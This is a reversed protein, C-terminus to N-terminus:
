CQKLNKQNKQSVFSGTFGMVFLFRKVYRDVFLLNSQKNSCEASDTSFLELGEQEKSSHASSVAERRQCVYMSKLVNM